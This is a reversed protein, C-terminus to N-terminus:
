LACTKKTWLMTPQLGDMEYISIAQIKFKGVPVKLSNLYKLQEDTVQTYGKLSCHPNYPFDSKEFKIGSNIIANHISDFPERTPEVFYIPTNPFNNIKKFEFESFEFKLLVNQIAETVEKLSQGHTISGVGSSGAITIEVPFHSIAPEIENRVKTVWESISAPLEAVIYTPKSIKM